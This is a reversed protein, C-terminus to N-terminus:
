VVVSVLLPVLSALDCRWKAIAQSNKAIYDRNMGVNLTDAQKSLYRDRSHSFKHGRVCIPQIHFRFSGSLMM